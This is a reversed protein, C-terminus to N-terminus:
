VSVIQRERVRVCVEAMVGGLAHTLVDMGNMMDTLTADTLDSADRMADREVGGKAYSSVVGALVGDLTRADVEGPDTTPAMECLGSLGAESASKVM